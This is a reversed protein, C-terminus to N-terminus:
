RRGGKLEEQLKDLGEWDDRTAYGAQEAWTIISAPRRMGAAKLAMLLDATSAKAIQDFTKLGADVLADRYKPGVGEIRTLDDIEDPEDATPEPPPAKEAVVPEPEKAIAAKGVAVEAKAVAVKAKAVTAVAKANAEDAATKPTESMADEGESLAEDALSVWLASSILFLIGALVWDGAPASVIVLRVAVLVAAVLTVVAILTRTSRDKTM